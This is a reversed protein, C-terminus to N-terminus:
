FVSELCRERKKKGRKFCLKKLFSTELFFVFCFLVVLFVLLPTYLSVLTRPSHAAEGCSLGSGRKHGRLREHRRAVGSTGPGGDPHAVLYQAGPIGSKRPIATVQSPFPSSPWTDQLHEKPKPPLRQRRPDGEKKRAGSCWTDSLSPLKIKNQPKPRDLTPVAAPFTSSEVRPTGLLATGHRTSAARGSKGQLRLFNFHHLYDQQQTSRVNLDAAPDLPAPWQQIKQTPNIRKDWSICPCNTEPRLPSLSGSWARGPRM